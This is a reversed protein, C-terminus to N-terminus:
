SCQAYQAELASGELLRPQLWTTLNKDLQVMLRADIHSESFLEDCMSLGPPLDGTLLATAPLAAEENGGVAACSFLLIALYLAETGIPHSPVAVERLHQLHSRNINNLQYERILSHRRSLERQFQRDNALITDGKAKPW